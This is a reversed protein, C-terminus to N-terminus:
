KIKDFLKKAENFIAKDDLGYYGFLEKSNGSKLFQDPFGLNTVFMPKVKSVYQSISAGIGGSISHEEVTLVAKTKKIADYITEEDFPKITHMDIVRANINEKKLEKAALVAYYLTEGCAIISIDDGDSLVNYKNFDFHCGEEYVNPVPNRGVRIYTPIDDKSIQRLMSVAQNGDSPLIIRINPFTKLVAIDHLSYHSFGLAGYSVGGSVGFIKVNKNSYCVDVKIQELSRASLFCAPACVYPKKGVAALGSSIGIENQEAIGVEIYQEPLAEVFKGLSTSGRADSSIAIIDKDKEAMSLLEKTFAERCSINNEM